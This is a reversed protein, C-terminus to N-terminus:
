WALAAEKSPFEILVTRTWDWEGELTTPQEDVGLAKGEYKVCVDSFGAEYEAYRSRDEVKIQAILYHSV